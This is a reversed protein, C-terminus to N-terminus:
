MQQKSLPLLVQLKELEFQKQMFELRSHLDRGHMETEQLKQM